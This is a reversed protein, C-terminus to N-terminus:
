DVFRFRFKARKALTQLQKERDTDNLDSDDNTAALEHCTVTDSGDLKTLGILRRVGSTHKLDEPTFQDQIQSKTYGCQEAAFGLCCMNGDDNRLRALGRKGGRAWKSRKVTITRGIVSYPKPKM